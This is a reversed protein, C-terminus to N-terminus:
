INYCIELKEYNFVNYEEKTKNNRVDIHLVLYKDIHTYITLSEDLGGLVPVIEQFEADNGIKFILNAQKSYDTTSIKFESRVCPLTQGKKLLNLNQGNSLKLGINYPLMYVNESASADITCAGDAIDWEPNDPFYLKANYLKKLTERLYKLNSSGGVCLICDVKDKFSKLIVETLVNLSDDVIDKVINNLEEDTVSILINQGQISCMETIKSKNMSSLKIKFEEALAILGDYEKPELEEFAVFPLGKEKVTKKYIYKAFDKDIIDGARYMNKTYIEKISNKNVNIASVDLTGGGWDFVVINNFIKLEEYHAIFAATPENVFKTIQIGAKKAANELLLKKQSSFNVPVSIVSKDIDINYQKKANKKLDKFILSAMDVTNIEKEEGHSVIKWTKSTDNLITKISSIIEYEKSLSRKQRKVNNGVKYKGESHKIAIISALPQQIYDDDDGVLCKGKLEDFYVLTTNTTGFDIGCYSM